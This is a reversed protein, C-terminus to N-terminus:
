FQYDLKACPRLTKLSGRRLMVLDGVQFKPSTQRKADAFRKSDVSARTLQRTLFNRIRQLSEAREDATPNASTSPRPQVDMVRPHYGYNAFFPSMGTAANNYSFEAVALLPHWDDQLYNVYARLYQEMVQNVRETQGDSEPHRSSSLNRQVGLRILLQKWFKAIFQPGRDSVTDDPLGHLRFVNALFLAALDVSSITENCPIFHAMKSLRDVVVLISDYGNSCPLKVVFDMSISRWLTTPLPLPM